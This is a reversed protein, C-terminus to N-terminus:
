RGESRITARAVAALLGRVHWLPILAALAFAVIPIWVLVFGVLLLLHRIGGTRRWWCWSSASPAPRPSSARRVRITEGGSIDIGDDPRARNRGPPIIEPEFRPTEPKPEGRNPNLDERM